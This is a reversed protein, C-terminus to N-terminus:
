VGRACQTHTHTHTRTHTYTHTHTYSSYSVCREHVQEAYTLYVGQAKCIYIQTCTHMHTFVHIYAYKYMCIRMNTHLHVDDNAHKYICTRMNTHLHVNDNNTQNLYACVLLAPFCQCRPNRIIRLFARFRVTLPDVHNPPDQGQAEPTHRNKTETRTQRARDGQPYQRQGEPSFDLVLDDKSDCM